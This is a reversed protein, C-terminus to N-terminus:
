TVSGWASFSHGWPDGQQVGEASLITSNGYFLFSSFRYASYALLYVKPAKVFVEKLIVDRIICNFTNQFDLKLMLNRPHLQTLYTRAAHVAGEAGLRTGYGVQLPFLLSGMEEYVSNGLYKAVLRRLTCGVAIPRGGGELKNLGLLRAGFFVPAVPHPVNGSTLQSVFSALAEVFSTPPSPPSSIRSGM